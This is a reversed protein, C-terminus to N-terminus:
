LLSEEGGYRPATMDKVIKKENEGWTAKLCHKIV